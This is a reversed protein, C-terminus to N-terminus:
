HQQSTIRLALQGCNIAIHEAATSQKDTLGVTQLSYGFIFHEEAATSQKDTLGITRLSYM